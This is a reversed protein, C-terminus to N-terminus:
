CGKKCQLSNMYYYLAELHDGLILKEVMDVGSGLHINVRIRNTTLVDVFKVARVVLDTQLAMLHAKPPVSLNVPTILELARRSLAHPIATMTNPGLDPRHAVRNIFYKGVVASHTLQLPTILGSIDNLAIDIGNFVAEVFPVLDLADIIIDGDLFLIGDANTYQAGLARGVDYGLPDEYTIVRAGAQCAIEGTQDTSGNVIVILQRVATIRRAQHLVKGITGAENCASIVVDMTKGEDGRVSLSSAAGALADRTNKRGAEYGKRYGQSYGARFGNKFGLEFGRAYIEKHNFNM